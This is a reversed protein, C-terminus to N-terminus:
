HTRSALVRQYVAATESACRAWSFLAARDRSRVAMESHAQDNLAITELAVRLGDVDKPDFYVAADGAVEPFSSARSCVIPCGQVMAETLPMGFGEYESPFVFLRAHRYACALEADSGSLQILQDERLGAAAAEAREAPQLGGGGFCVLDFSSALKASAGFARLLPNFNKYGGRTGVFLLYPRERAQPRPATSFTQDVGHWVVRTKGEFEPYTSLLDIRTNDSICIIAQARRLARYREARQQEAREFHQPFRELIMDHLTTVTPTRRSRSEAQPM